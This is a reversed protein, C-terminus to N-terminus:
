ITFKPTRSEPRKVLDLDFGDKQYRSKNAGVIKRLRQAIKILRMLRLIRGLSV